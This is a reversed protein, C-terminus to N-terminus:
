PVVVLPFRDIRALNLSVSGVHHHPQHSPGGVVLVINADSGRQSRLEDAVAILEDAVEGDRRQVHWRPETAELRARVDHDLRHDLDGEPATTPSAPVPAVQVVELQGDRGRLLRAAADLARRAPESGDFGVVVVVPAGPSSRATGATQEMTWETAFATSALPGNM